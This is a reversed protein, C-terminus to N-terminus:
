FKGHKLCFQKRIHVENIRIKFIDELIKANINTNLFNNFKM